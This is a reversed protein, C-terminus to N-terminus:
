KKRDLAGGILPRAQLQQLRQLEAKTTAADTLATSAATKAQSLETEQATIKARLKDLDTMQKKGEDTDTQTPQKAAENIKTQLAAIENKKSEELKALRQTTDQLDRKAQALESETTNLKQQTTNLVETISAVQEEGTAKKRAEFYGFVCLGVAIIMLLALKM